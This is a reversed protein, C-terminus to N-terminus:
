PDQAPQDDIHKSCARMETVNRAKAQCDFLAKYEPPVEEEEEISFGSLQQNRELREIRHELREIIRELDYIRREQKEHALAPLTTVMFVMLLAFRKMM